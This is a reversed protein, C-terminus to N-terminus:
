RDAPRSYTTNRWVVTAGRRHKTMAIVLAALTVICGIPYTWALSKRAETLGYFRWIVSLQMAVAASGVIGTALWWGRAAAGTASLSLGTIAVAYPLLGMLFMVALSVVLRKLTGFTGFFIRSWGRLIQGLSTYMRVVYLGRSQVVRLTLGAQKIRAALHMDEMLKDRVAQHTGIADYAIRRVLIFAGNAYAEPKAPDNVKDPRYWIMMVGGCVPQVVNEWFGRMELVPLVSLLDAGRDRAERMAVSITRSSVQRCDADIMCLYQGRSASAATWMGHCKGTWEDPKHQLEILRLRSDRASLERVIQATRDSSRDSCVIMELNPYDQALMSEVCAAINAEEDKASVIVSVLPCDGTWAQSEPCLVENGTQQRHILYHRSSWVLIVPVTLVLLVLAIVSM